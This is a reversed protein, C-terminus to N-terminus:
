GFRLVLRDERAVALQLIAEAHGVAILDLELDARHQAPEAELRRNLLLQGIVERAAPLHTERQGLQQQARRIQEQEVLRGVM